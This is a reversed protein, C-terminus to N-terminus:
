EYHKSIESIIIEEIVIEDEVIENMQLLLRFQQNLRISYYEQLDGKLKEFNLGAFQRLEATSQANILILVKKRFQKIIEPAFKQKGKLEELPTTYLTALDKNKFIIRM